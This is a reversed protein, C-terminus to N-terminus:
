LSLLQQQDHTCTPSHLSLAANGPQQPDIYGPIKDGYERPQGERSAAIAWNLIYEDTPGIPPLILYPRSIGPASIAAGQYLYPQDNM